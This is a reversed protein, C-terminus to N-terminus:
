CLWLMMSMNFLFIGITMIIITTTANAIGKAIYVIEGNNILVVTFSGKGVVAATIFL